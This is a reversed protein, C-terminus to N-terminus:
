IQLSLKISSIIIAEGKITIHGFENVTSNCSSEVLGFELQYDTMDYALGNSTILAKPASLVSLMSSKPGQFKVKCDKFFEVYQKRYLLKTSIANNYHKRLTRVAHFSHDLRGGFWNVITIEKAGVKCAHVLAKDLDTSNQDSIKLIEVGRKQYYEISNAHITDMDGIIVNPILDLNQVRNAIGDCFLIYDFKIQPFKIKKQPSDAVILVRM